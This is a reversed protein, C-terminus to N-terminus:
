AQVVDWAKGLHATFDDASQPEAFLAEGVLLVMGDSDRHCGFWERAVDELVPPVPISYFPPVNTAARITDMANRREAGTQDTGTRAGFLM